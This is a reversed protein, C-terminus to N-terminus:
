WGGWTKKGYIGNEYIEPLSNISGCRVFSEHYVGVEWKNKTQRGWEGRFQPPSCTWSRDQHVWYDSSFPFAYMFEVSGVAKTEPLSECGVLLLGLMIIVTKM